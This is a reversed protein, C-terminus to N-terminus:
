LILDRNLIGNQAQYVTDIIKGFYYTFIAPMLSNIIYSIVTLLAYVNSISFILKFVKNITKISKRM